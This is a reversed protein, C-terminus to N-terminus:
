HTIPVIFARKLEISADEFPIPLAFIRMMSAHVAAVLVFFSSLLKGIPPIVACVNKAIKGYM